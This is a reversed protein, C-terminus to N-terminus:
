RMGSTWCWTSRWPVPTCLTPLPPPLPFPRGGPLGEIMYQSRKGLDGENLIARFREFIAHLGLASVDRLAVGVEKTLGV